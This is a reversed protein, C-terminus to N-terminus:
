RSEIGATAIISAATVSFRQCFHAAAATSTGSETRYRSAKTQRQCTHHHFLLSAGQKKLSPQAERLHYRGEAPSIRRRRTIYERRSHEHPNEQRLIEKKGTCGVSSPATIWRNEM